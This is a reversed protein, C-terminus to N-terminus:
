SRANASWCVKHRLIKRPPFEGIIPAQEVYFVMRFSVLFNIDVTIPKCGRRYSRLRGNTCERAAFALTHRNRPREIKFRLQDDQSGVM